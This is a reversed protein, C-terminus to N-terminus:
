SKKASLIAADVNKTLEALQAELTPDIPLVTGSIKEAHELIRMISYAMSKAANTTMAVSVQEEFGKAYLM